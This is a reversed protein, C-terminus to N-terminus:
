VPPRLRCDDFLSQCGIHTHLLATSQAADSVSPVYQVIYVETADEWLTSGDHGLFLQLVSRQETLEHCQRVGDEDVPRLTGVSDSNKGLHGCGHLLLCHTLCGLDYTYEVVNQHPRSAM